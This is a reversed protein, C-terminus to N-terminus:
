DNPFKHYLCGICKRYFLFWMKEKHWKKGDGTYVGNNKSKFVRCSCYRFGMRDRSKIRWIIHSTKEFDINPDWLTPIQIRVDKGKPLIVMNYNMPYSESDREIVNGTEDTYKCSDKWFTAEIGGINRIELHRYRTGNKEIFDKLEPYKEPDIDLSRFRIDINPSMRIYVGLATILSIVFSIIKWNEKISDLVITINTANTLL